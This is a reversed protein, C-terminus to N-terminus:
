IHPGSASSLMTSPGIDIVLLFRGSAGIGTTTGTGSQIVASVTGTQNSTCYFAQAWTMIQGGSATVGVPMLATHITGTTPSGSGARLFMTAQNGASSSKYATAHIVLYARGNEWTISGSQLATSTSIASTDSSSYAYGVIGKARNTELVTIRADLAALGHPTVARTTDTVAAAEADTALEVIGAASTTALYAAVMALLAHPTVARTADTGTTAEADTALEVLGKVTSSANPILSGVAAALGSPTIVRTTDTGANVETNTALEVIGAVTTSANPVAVLASGADIETGDHQVLILDGSGNIYGDVVSAAEIAEMRTATLGTVTAM